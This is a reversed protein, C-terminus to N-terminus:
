EYTQLTYIFSHIYRIGADLVIFHGKDTPTSFLERIVDHM